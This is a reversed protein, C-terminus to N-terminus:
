SAYYNTAYAGIVFTALSPFVLSSSSSSSSSSHYDVIGITTAVNGEEGEASTMTAVNDMMM